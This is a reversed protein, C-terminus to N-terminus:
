VDVGFTKGCVLLEFFTPQQQLMDDVRRNAGTSWCLLTRVPKPLFKLDYMRPSWHTITWYLSQLSSTLHQYIDKMDSVLLTVLHNSSPSDTTSQQATRYSSIHADLRPRQAQNRQIHYLTRRISEHTEIHKLYAKPGIIGHLEEIGTLIDNAFTLKKLTNGPDKHISHLRARERRLYAVQLRADPTNGLSGRTRTLNEYHMLQSDMWMSAEELEDNIHAAHGDILAVIDSRRRIRPHLAHRHDLKLSDVADAMMKKCAKSERLEDHDACLEYKAIETSAWALRNGYYQGIWTGVGFVITVVFTLFTVTHIVSWNSRRVISTGPIPLSASDTSTSSSTAAPSTTPSANSLEVTQGEHGASEVLNSHPVVALSDADGEIEELEVSPRLNSDGAGPQSQFPLSSGATRRRRSRVLEPLKQLWSM